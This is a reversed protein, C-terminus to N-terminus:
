SLFQLRFLLWTEEDFDTKKRKKRQALFVNKMFIELMKIM